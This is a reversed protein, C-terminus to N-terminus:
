IRSPTRPLQYSPLFPSVANSNLLSLDIDTILTNIADRNTQYTNVIRNSNLHDFTDAARTTTSTTSTNDTTTPITIPPPPPLNLLHQRASTFPPPTSPPPPPLVVNNRNVVQETRRIRNRLTSLPPIRPKIILSDNKRIFTKVTSIGLNYCKDKVWSNTSYKGILYYSLSVNLKKCYVIMNNSNITQITPVHVWNIDKRYDFFMNEIYEYKEYYSGEKCFKQICKDKLYPYYNDLLKNINFESYFFKSIVMPIHFNSHLIKLYINYLNNSHFEINTYPNKIKKPTPFLGQVELLSDSWMNIIDTLRFTYLTNNELLEIKQSPPFQSLENFYLDTTMEYRKTKKIKINYFFRTLINYIKKSKVYLNIYKNLEKQYLRNNSLDTLFVNDIIDSYFFEPHSGVAFKAM